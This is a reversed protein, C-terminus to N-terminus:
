PTPSQRGGSKPRGVASDWNKQSSYRELLWRNGRRVWELVLRDDAAGKMGDQKNVAVIIGRCKVTASEANASVLTEPAGIIRAREIRVLPMLTEVDRRLEASASPALYGLAGAVDNAEVTAALSYLSREVAERPTEMLWSTLLLAATVAIVGLIGFLAGGTRTQFFVILAMTLAIAGGMWIPLTNEALWNM